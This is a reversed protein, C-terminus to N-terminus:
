CVCAKLVQQLQSNNIMEDTTPRLRYSWNKKSRVGPQNIRDHGWTFEPAQALYEPLLNIHFLSPTQHSDRLIEFHHEQSLEHEWTWGKFAAFAKSEHPQNQWWDILTETDHTSVTSMSLPTYNRYPIYFQGEREWRIVKTGCIGLSNLHLKISNPVHGLDEGIPLM